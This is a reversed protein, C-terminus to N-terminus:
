CKYLTNIRLIDIASLEQRQGITVSPDPIPTITDLGNISFATKGYHMISSYDYTTKLNNTNKLNFNSVTSPDINAWNITVYGDRDSRTHEHQFGLAHNLEHEVIGYHVCGLRNFSVM